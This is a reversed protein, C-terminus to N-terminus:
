GRGAPRRAGGRAPAIPTAGPTKRTGSSGPGRGRRWSPRARHRGARAAPPRPRRRSPTREARRRVRWRAGVVVRLGVAHDAGVVHGLEDVGRPGRPRGLAGQEGMPAHGVRRAEPRHAEPHPGTVDVDLGHGQEVHAALHHRELQALEDAVATSTGANSGPRTRSSTSASDAVSVHPTGVMNSARTSCGSKARGRGRTTARRHAPSARDHGGLEHRWMSRRGRAHLERHHEALGLRAPEDGLGM